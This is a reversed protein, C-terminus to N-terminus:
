INITRKNSYYKSDYKNKFPNKIIKPIKIPDPKSM